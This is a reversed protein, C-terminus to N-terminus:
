RPHNSNLLEDVPMDNNINLGSPCAAGFTGATQSPINIIERRAVEAYPVPDAIEKPGTLLQPNVVSIEEQEAMVVDANAAPDVEETEMAALDVELQRAMDLQGDHDESIEESSSSYSSSSSDSSSGSGDGDVEGQGELVPADATQRSRTTIDVEAEDEHVSM